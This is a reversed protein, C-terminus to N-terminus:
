SLIFYLMLHIFVPIHLKGTRETIWTFLAGMLGAGFVMITKESWFGDIWLLHAAPFILAIVIITWLPSLVQRLYHRLLGFTITNQWLVSVTTFFLYVAVPSDFHYHLPVLAAAGIAIATLIWPPRSSFHLQDTLVKRHSLFLPILLILNAVAGIVIALPDDLFFDAVTANIGLSATLGFLLLWATIATLLKLIALPQPQATSQPPHIGATTM